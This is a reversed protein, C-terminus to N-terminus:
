MSCCAGRSYIYSLPPTSNCSTFLPCPSLLHTGPKPIVNVLFLKLLYSLSRSPVHACALLLSVSSALWRAATGTSVPGRSWLQQVQHDCHKHRHTMLRCGGALLLYVFLQVGDEQQANNCGPLIHQWYGFTGKWFLQCFFSFLFLFGQLNRSSM